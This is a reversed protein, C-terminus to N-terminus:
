RRGAQADPEAVKPSYACRASVRRSCRPSNCVIKANAGKSALIISGDRLHAQAFRGASIAAVYNNGRHDIVRRLRLMKSARMQCDQFRMPKAARARARFRACLFRTSPKSGSVIAPSSANIATPSSLVSRRERPQTFPRFRRGLLVQDPDDFAKLGDSLQADSRIALLANMTRAVRRNRPFRGNEAGLMERSEVRRTSQGVRTTKARSISAIRVSAARTM